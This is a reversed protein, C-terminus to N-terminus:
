GADADSDLFLLDYVPGGPRVGPHLFQIAAGRVGVADQVALVPAAPHVPHQDGGGVAGVPLAPANADGPRLQDAPSMKALGITAAPWARLLRGRRCVKGHLTVPRPLLAHLLGYPPM